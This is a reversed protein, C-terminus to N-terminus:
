KKHKKRNPKLRKKLGLSKNKKNKKEKRYKREEKDSLDENKEIDLLDEKDPLVETCEKDPLVEADKKDPLVEADEKDPLVEADEKDPLVETYEKDPLAETGEEDPLVEVDDKDPLAVKGHANLYKTRETRLVSLRKKIKDIFALERKRDNRAYQLEILGAEELLEPNGLDNIKSELSAFKDKHLNLSEILAKEQYAFLTIITDVPNDINIISAVSMDDKSGIKSIMPLDRKLAKETEKKAIEFSDIGEKNKSKKNDLKKIYLKLVEIYFNYLKEGDGYSDDLGDSGLFVALPFHGDGQYCYRFREIANSDCISTTRNLFCREDWPIPQSCNLTGNPTDFFVMKGDGIQFAIWFDKTQIFAMLTCGYTKEYTANPDQQKALFEDKYKQEVHSQEWETLGRSADMAIRNNWECIIYSFLWILAQHEQKDIQESIPNDAIYTSFRTGKFLPAGKKLKFSSNDLESLFGKVANQTVEVAIQSGIQSRFYREGGHGDCVVAISFESSSEAYAFDQCPKDSSKHSEGQCYHYFSSM